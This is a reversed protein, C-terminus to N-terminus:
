KVAALGLQPPWKTYINLLISSPFTLSQRNKQDLQIFSSCIGNEDLVCVSSSVQWFNANVRRITQRFFHALSYNSAFIPHHSGVKFPCSKERLILPHIRKTCKEVVIRNKTSKASMSFRNKQADGPFVSSKSPELGEAEFSSPKAFKASIESRTFLSGTPRSYNSYWFVFIDDNGTKLWHFYDENEM